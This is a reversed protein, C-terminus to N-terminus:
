IEEVVGGGKDLPPSPLNEPASELISTVSIRGMGGKFFSPSVLDAAMM